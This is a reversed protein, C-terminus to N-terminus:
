EEEEFMSMLDDAAPEVELLQLNEEVHSIRSM